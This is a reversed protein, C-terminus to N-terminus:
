AAERFCWAEYAHQFGEASLRKAKADKGGGDIWNLSGTAGPM